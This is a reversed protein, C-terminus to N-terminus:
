RKVISYFLEEYEKSIKNWDHERIMRERGKRARSKVERGGDLLLKLKNYISREDKAKSYFGCDGVMEPIGGIRSATTPVESSLSELVAMGAPEYTSPLAFVDVANYYYRVKNLPVGGVLVVRDGIGLKEALKELKSKLPGRGMIVAASDYGDDVIRKVAKLLYSQGKQPVLRGNNFIISDYDGIDRLIRSVNRHRKSRKKFVNYDVGNFVVHAKGISQKPVTSRIASESVGTILDADSIIRRGVVSDFIQGGLDTTFDINRPLSNHITIAMKGNSKIKKIEGLGYQFRNNIHYIDAGALSIERQINEMLLYPLPAGPLYVYKSRMRVIKIGYVEEIRKREGDHLTGTLVTINHKKALRRYVELLVNETGGGYPWFFPNLVCIDM